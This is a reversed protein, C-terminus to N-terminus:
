GGKFNQKSSYWPMYHVMIQKEERTDQGSELQSGDPRSGEEFGVAGEKAPLPLADTKTQIGTLLLCLFVAAKIFFTIRMSIMM